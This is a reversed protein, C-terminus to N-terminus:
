PPAHEVTLFYGGVDAFYTDVVVITYHASGPARFTLKANTGFIGGGSDDDFVDESSGQYDVQLLPDFNM